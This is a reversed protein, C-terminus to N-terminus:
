ETRLAVVPDKKAAIRSPILGAIFTLFMSILVLVVAAVPPLAASIGSIGSLARIIANIPITLLVTVLIGIVGATFGLIVAEANFVRSIDRKSAGISRLIGIEKTRELVSIYTIIGIMISSVVLSIAVFAILVYSIANIITTVSSMMLAVYDTYTIKDSENKVSANYKDIIDSIAEKAEFSIAYINISSPSDERVIGLKSANEAYSSKSYKDPMIDAYISALTDDGCGDLYVDLAASLEGETMQALSASTQEAYSKKIEEGLTKKIMEDLEEDSLGKLYSSIEDSSVGAEESYYGIVAEEIATRDPFSAMYQAIM